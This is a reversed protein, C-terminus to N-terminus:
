GRQPRSRVSAVRVVTCLRGWRQKRPQTPAWKPAKAQRWTALSPRLAPSTAAHAPPPTHLHRHTRALTCSPRWLRYCSHARMRPLAAPYRDLPDPTFRTRRRSTRRTHLRTGWAAARTPVESPVCALPALGFAPHPTGWVEHVRVTIMGMVPFPTHHDRLSRWLAAADTRRAYLRRWRSVSRSRRPSAGGGM